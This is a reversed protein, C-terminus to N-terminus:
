AAVKRGQQTANVGAVTWAASTSPNKGFVAYYYADTTLLTQNPGTGVVGGHKVLQQVERTGADTKRMFTARVVAFIDGVSSPLDDLQDYDTDGVTSSEVYQSDSPPVENVAAYNDAAGTVDWDASDGAAVGALKDIRVDGLYGNFAAGQTATGDVGDMVLTDGFWFAWTAIDASTTLDFQTAYANGTQQTDLGTLDIAPTSAGDVYVKLTGASNHITWEAYVHHYGGIALNITAATGTFHCTGDTDITMQVQMTGSDLFRFVPVGNASGVVNVKFGTSMIVKAAQVGLNRAANRGGFIPVVQIGRRGNRGFAGISCGAGARVDFLHSVVDTESYPTVFRIM